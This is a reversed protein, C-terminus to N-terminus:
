TRQVAAYYFGDFDGGPAIRRGFETAEGWEGAITQLEAGQARAYFRGMVEDGEARLVSCAAYVLRGGPKLLPWLAGLLKLQQEALAVVDTDRRLWKIDPHRRIVGTGSCPADLLIRDFAVGDWWAKPEGADGAVCTATLKLRRLTEDVRVLRKPDSDLAILGAVDVGELVHAAKGGPAACADLVRMGPQVELVEAALQASADQVSVQGSNFGPIKEVPRADLLRLADAAHAIPLAEISMDGLRQLYVERAFARRNVRLTLPGQQNNAQLIEPWREPWDRRLAQVLWAPHSWRTEPDDPLQAELTAKDRQYRRLVANVFGRAHQQRMTQTADVTENLVAHEAVQMSRLQHIGVLLLAHLEPQDGLQKDLVQATLWALLAHDRLVGYVMARIFAADPAREITPQALADDLSRGRMVRVVAQAALARSNVPKNM